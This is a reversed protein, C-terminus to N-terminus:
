LFWIKVEEIQGANLELSTTVLREEVRIGTLKKKSQPHEGTLIVKRVYAKADALDVGGRTEEMDEWITIVSYKDLGKLKEM